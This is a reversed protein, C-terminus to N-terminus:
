VVVALSTSREATPLPKRRLGRTRFRGPGSLVGTEVSAFVGM